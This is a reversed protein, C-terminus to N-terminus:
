KPPKLPQSSPDSEAPFTDRRDNLDEPEWPFKDEMFRELRPEPFLRLLIDETAVFMLERSPPPPEVFAVSTSSLCTGVTGRFVTIRIRDESLCEM